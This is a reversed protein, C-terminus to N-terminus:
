ATQTPMTEILAEVQELIAKIREPWDPERNRFPDQALRLLSVATYLEIRDHIPHTNALRYGELLAAKIPNVLHPALDGRGAQRHLHAIFNGLDAAPDGRVAEDLDVLAVADGDFLVQKAYFDGHIPCNRPPLQVLQAALRLALGNTRGALDPCLIGLSGAVELLRVAEAQSTLLPLKGGTQAHLEALAAGANTVAQLNPETAAIAESLLHGPLWESVVTSHHDSRGLRRAVRLVSCSKLAKAKNRAGQYGTESHLKIIAQDGSEALLRAVYRREPKYALAHATSEWLNPYNPLLRRLLSRRSQAEALLPLAAVKADNPFIFVAMALHELVVHSPGLQGRRSPRRRINHLKIEASPSYAKIYIPVVGGAMQLEYALLCSTAPKYRIYTSRATGLDAKPWYGRLENVLAEPDLAVALGPLGPDRRALAADDPSLASEEKRM